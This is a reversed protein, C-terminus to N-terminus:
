SLVKLAVERSRELAEGLKEPLKGGAQALNPRGGGGGGAVSATERVWDGAKLGKKIVDESVAAVFMVKEAGASAIMAAFLGREM